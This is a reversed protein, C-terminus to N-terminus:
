EKENQAKIEDKKIVTRSNYLIMTTFIPALTFNKSNQAHNILKTFCHDYIGTTSSLYL